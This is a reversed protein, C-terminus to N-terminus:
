RRFGCCAFPLAGALALLAFASPEPVSNLYVPSTGLGTPLGPASPNVGPNETEVAFVSSQWWSNPLGSSRAQEFSAGHSANWIGIQVWATAGPSVNFLSTTGGNFYGAGTGTLFSTAAIFALNAPAPGALLEAMFDPGSLATIGDLQFAPANLRWGAPGINVFDVTGQGLAGVVMNLVFFAVFFTKM